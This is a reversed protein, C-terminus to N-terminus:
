PLTLLYFVMGFYVQYRLYFFPRSIPKGQQVAQRVSPGIFLANHRFSDAYKPAVYPADAFILIHTIEVNRLLPARKILGNILTIPAGAGGGLYIRQGSQVFALATDPDTVKRRYITEWNM